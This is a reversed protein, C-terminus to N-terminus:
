EKLWVFVTRSLTTVAKGFQVSRPSALAPLLPKGASMPLPGNLIVRAVRAPFQLAAETVVVAGTHHGLVSARPIRLQDLVAPVIHAYDPMAPPADPTDSGGFGPLDIAIARIGRRALPQLVRAFQVSDTPSQHVLVLPRGEGCQSYHVQGWRGDAYGKHIKTQSTM